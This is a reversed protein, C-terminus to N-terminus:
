PRDAHWQMFSAYEKVSFLRQIWPTIPSYYMRRYPNGKDDYRPAGCAPSPCVTSSKYHGRYVHGCKTNQCVHYEFMEIGHGADVLKDLSEKFNTPMNEVIGPQFMAERKLWTKLNRNYAKESTNCEAKDLLLEAVHALVHKKLM